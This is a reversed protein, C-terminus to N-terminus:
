VLLLMSRSFDIHRAEDAKITKTALRRARLSALDFPPKGMTIDGFVPPPPAQGLGLKGLSHCLESQESAVQRYRRLGLLKHNKAVLPGHHGTYHGIFEPESLQSLGQGFWLVRQNSAQGSLLQRLKGIIIFSRVPDFGYPTCAAVKKWLARTPEKTLSASFMEKDLEIIEVADVPRATGRVLRLFRNAMSKRNGAISEYHRVGIAEGYQAFAKERSLFAAAIGDQSKNDQSRYLGHVLILTSENM